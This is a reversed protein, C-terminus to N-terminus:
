AVPVTNYKTAGVSGFAAGALLYDGTRGSRLDWAVWTALPIFFTMPGDPVM